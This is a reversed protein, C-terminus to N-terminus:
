NLISDVTGIFDKLELLKKNWLKMHLMNNSYLFPLMWQLVSFKQQLLLQECRKLAEQTYASYIYLSLCMIALKGGLLQLCTCLGKREKGKKLHNGLFLKRGCNVWDYLIIKQREM